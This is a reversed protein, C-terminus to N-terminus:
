NGPFLLLQFNGKLREIVSLDVKAMYKGHPDLEDDTIGLKEAINTIREMKAAQAIELDSPVNHAM